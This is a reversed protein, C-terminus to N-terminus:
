YFFRDYLTLYEIPCAIYQYICVIVLIIKLWFVTDKLYIEGICSHYNPEQIRGYARSEKRVADHTRDLVVSIPLPLKLNQHLHYTWLGGRCNDGVSKYSRSTAYAVLCGGHAKLDFKQPKTSLNDPNNRTSQTSLCCDFLLIRYRYELLPSIETSFRSVIADEIYVKEADGAEQLQLPLVYGQGNDADIGGHGAYYFVIFQYGPPYVFTCAVHLLSILESSTLDNHSSVALHLEKFTSTM